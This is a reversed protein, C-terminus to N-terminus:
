GHVYGAQHNIEGLDAQDVQEARMHGAFDPWHAVVVQRYQQIMRGIALLGPGAERMRKCMVQLGFPHIHEYEVPRGYLQGIM